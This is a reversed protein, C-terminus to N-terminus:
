SRRRQQARKSTTIPKTTAGAPEQMARWEAYRKATTQRESEPAELFRLLWAEVVSREDLLHERCHREFWARLEDNLRFNKQGPM